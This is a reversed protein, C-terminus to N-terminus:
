DIYPNYEPILEKIALKIKNAEVCGALAEVKEQCELSWKTNAVDSEFNRMLRIRPHQTPLLNETAHQVEEYLKEGPRLGIIKIEIDEGSRLGSFEILQRALDIIKVPQGMDLVYIEGGKGIVATQLVLGVAEPITMFFRTVEPHTVTVPGGEAIQKKFIPIVSGSSGLVNGFRVAIFQTTNGVRVQLAQLHREAMRKSAGMVSTPNIAKDTSIMVFTEVGNAAALEALLRTGYTNNKVAEGPQREMLYVHKHAAAHFIVKPAYTRLINRMRTEDLVDAVLPILRYNYGHKILDSELNFLAGECQEVLLLSHPSYAAIQRCIESGISGGAGTVMVVRGQIFREIEPNGLDIAKRGLLDEVEVPRIRTVQVRGSALEAMSPVIEVHLGHAAMVKFIEQIRRGSLDQGALVCIDVQQDVILRSIEEPAGLIPVGHIDRGHLGADDDLIYLPRIGIMPKARVERVFEAAADGAGVIVARRSKRPVSGYANTLRERLIRLALRMLCIGVLALVFESLLVGRPPVGAGGRMWWLALMALSVFGGAGAIRTLDPISFYAMSSGFQRFLSLALLHAIALPVLTRLRVLQEEPPINFDYRLEYALQLAAFSILTYAAILMGLRLGSHFRMREKKIEHASM